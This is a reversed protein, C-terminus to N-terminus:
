GSGILKALRALSRQLMSRIEMNEVGGADNSLLVVVDGKPFDDPNRRFYERVVRKIRNRQVSSGTRRTAIIGLRKQNGPKYATTVKGSRAKIGSKKVDLFDSSNRIRSKM